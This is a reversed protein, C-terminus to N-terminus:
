CFWRCFELLMGGTYGPLLGWAAPGWPCAGLLLGVAASEWCCVELLLSGLLSADILARVVTAM